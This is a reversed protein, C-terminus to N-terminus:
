TSNFIFTGLIYATGPDVNPDRRGQRYKNTIIFQFLSHFCKKLLGATKIKKFCESSKKLNCDIACGPSPGVSADAGKLWTM